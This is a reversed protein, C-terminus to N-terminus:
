KEEVFFLDKKSRTLSIFKCNWEQKVQKASQNKRVLPLLDPRLIFVREAELGKARHVSSFVVGIQEDSFLSSIKEEVESPDSCEAIIFSLTEVKDELAQKQSDSAERAELRHMERIFYTQLKELMTAIDNAKFKRALAALGDGIDRGVIIAKIGRRLLAFAPSVLPANTRCIVMDGPVVHNGLENQKITTVLGKPANERAEIAPVIQKALEIHSEPCRYCISLPLVTATLATIINEIADCDAGRFAYISQNEDGVAVIRTGEHRLRLVFEIQSANLDQCEDVFVWDYTELKVGKVIPLWIMDDFDIAGGDIDKCADMIWVLSDLINALDDEIGDLNYDDIMALVAKRNRYDVLTAKVLSVVRATNKRLQRIAEREEGEFDRPSPINLGDMIKDLRNSDVKLKGFARTLNALGLAHLTKVTVHGPAREALENAIRKNFALFVVSQSANTFNLAQLITTTKGSGATANILANGAGNQVFDFVAAQYVSPKFTSVPKVPKFETEPCNAHGWKGSKNVIPSGQAFPGFCFGCKGAFKAPITRTGGNATYAM